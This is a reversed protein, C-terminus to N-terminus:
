CFQSDKFMEPHSFGIKLVNFVKNLERQPRSEWKSKQILNNVKMLEALRHFYRPNRQDVIYYNHLDNALIQQFHDTIQQIDGQFLKGAYEFCSQAFLYTLEVDTPDLRIISDTIESEHINQSKMYVAVYEQPYDSMWTTDMKAKERDMVTNRLVHQESKGTKLGSKKFTATCSCKHFKMWIHWISYLLTIQEQRGLKHFEDFLSIWKVVTGFYFEIIDMFEVKGFDEFIKLNKSDLRLFKSGLSLKKLQSEGVIPSECGFKLLRSAEFILNNTNIFTKFKPSTPEMFISFEPHGSFVSFRPGTHRPM